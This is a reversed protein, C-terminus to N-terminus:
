HLGSSRTSCLEPAADEVHHNEFTNLHHALRQRAPPLQEFLLDQWLQVFGNLIGGFQVGQGEGFIAM